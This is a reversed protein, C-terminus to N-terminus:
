RSWGYGTDLPPPVNDTKAFSVSADPASQGPVLAAMSKGVAGVSEETKQVRGEINTIATKVGGLETKVFSVLEDTSAKLLARIDKLPDAETKKAKKGTKDSKLDKTTDPGDPPNSSDDNDNDEDAFSTGAKKVTKGKDKKTAPARENTDDSDDAGETADDEDDASSDPDSPQAAATDPKDAKKTQVKPTLTITGDENKTVSYRENMVPPLETGGDRQGGADTGAAPNATEDGGSAGTDRPGGADSNAAPNDADSTGQGDDAPESKKKEKVEWGAKTLFDVAAKVMDETKRASVRQAEEADSKRIFFSSMDLVANDGEDSKIVRFPIRNAGRKVLSVFKVSVDKLENAKVQLQAM